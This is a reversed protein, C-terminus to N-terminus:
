QEDDSGGAHGAGRLERLHAPDQITGHQEPDFRGTGLLQELEAVMRGLRVSESPDRALDYLEHRGDSPHVLKCEGEYLVTRVRRFREGFREDLIDRLRSYSNEAM